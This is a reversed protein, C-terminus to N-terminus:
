SNSITQRVSQNSIRCDVSKVDNFVDDDDDDAVKIV